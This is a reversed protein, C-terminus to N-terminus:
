IMDMDMPNLDIGADRDEEDSSGSRGLATGDHTMAPSHTWFRRSYWPERRVIFWGYALFALAIFLAFVSDVWWLAENGNYLAISVVISLSLVASGISCVGDEFLAASKLVNSVHVKLVGLALLVVFTPITIALLAGTDTIESAKALHIVADFLVVLGTVLFSLGVGVAARKERALLVLDSPVDEFRWLVIFSSLLDVLAEMGFALMSSSGGSSALILGIIGTVITVIITIWSLWRAEMSSPYKWRQM